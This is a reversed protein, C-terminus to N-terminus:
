LDKFSCIDDEKIKNPSADKNKHYEKYLNFQSKFRAAFLKVREEEDELLDMRPVGNQNLQIVPYRMYHAYSALIAETKFGGEIIIFTLGYPKYYNQVSDIQEKAIQHIKDYMISTKIAKELDDDTMEDLDDEDVQPDVKLKYLDTLFRKFWSIGFKIFLHRFRMKNSDFDSHPM